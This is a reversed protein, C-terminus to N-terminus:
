QTLFTAFYVREVKHDHLVENLESKLEEKLAERGEETSVEEISKEGIVSTIVDWIRHLEPELELAFEENKEALDEGSLGMWKHEPDEFELAIAVKVYHPASPDSRLNLVREELALTPRPAAALEEETYVPPVQAELYNPKIYFWFAAVLVVAVVALIKVDVKM